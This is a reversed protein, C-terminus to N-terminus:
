ALKLANENDTEKQTKEEKLEELEEKIKKAEEELKNYEEMIKIMRNTKDNLKSQLETIREADTKTM